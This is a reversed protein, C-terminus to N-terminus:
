YARSYAYGELTAYEEALGSCVASHLGLSCQAEDLNKLNWLNGRRLYIKETPFGQFKEVLKQDPLHLGPTLSTPTQFIPIKLKM